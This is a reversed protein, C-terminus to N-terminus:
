GKGHGRLGVMVGRGIALLGVGKLAEVLANLYDQFPLNGAIVVAGGVAAVLVVLVAVMVTAVHTTFPPM